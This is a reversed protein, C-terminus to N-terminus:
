RKVVWRCVPPSGPALWQVAYAGPAALSLDVYATSNEGTLQTAVTRGLADAIRLQGPRPTRVHLVGDTPVPWVMLQEQVHQTAPLGLPLESDHYRKCQNPLAAAITNPLPVQDVVFNCAAGPLNPENIVSLSNEGNWVLYIRGDPASAIRLGLGDPMDYEPPYLETRVLAASAAIQVADQSTLDFQRLTITWGFDSAWAGHMQYLKTADPSFETGHVGNSLIPLSSYYSVVGTNSNFQFLDCSIVSSSDTSMNTLALQTGSYSAVLSGLRNISNYSNTAMPLAPGTQSIVPAPDVGQATLRYALFTNGRHGHSIIWYDTGNAHAVATLPNMSSDNLEQESGAELAWTGTQANRLFNFHVLRAEANNFSSRRAFAAIREDDGPWPCFLSSPGPSPVSPWASGPASAIVTGTAGAYVYNGDGYLQLEGTPSSISASGTIWVTGPVWAGAQAGDETFHMWNARPLPWHANRQQGRAHGVFLLVSALAAASRMM